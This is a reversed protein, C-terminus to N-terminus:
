GAADDEPELSRNRLEDEPAALALLVNRRPCEGFARWIGALGELLRGQALDALFCTQGDPDQRRQVRDLVREDLSAQTDVLRDVVEHHLGRAAAEFVVVALELLYPPDRECFGGVDEGELGLAREDTQRRCPQRFSSGSRRTGVAVSQAVPTSSGVPPRGRHSLRVVRGQRRREGGPMRSQTRPDHLEAAPEHRELVRADQLLMSGHARPGADEVEGVHALEKDLARLRDGREAVGQGRVRPPELHSSGVVRHDEEGLAADEVVEDDVPEALLSEHDHGVGAVSDGHAIGQGLSQLATPRDQVVPGQRHTEDRDLARPRGAHESGERIYGHVPEAVVGDCLPVHGAHRGKDRSGPIRALVAELHEDVVARRLRDPVGQEVGALIRTDHGDAQASTVREPELGPHREVAVLEPRVRRRLFGSEAADNMEVFVTVEDTSGCELLGRCLPRPALEDAQDRTAPANGAM